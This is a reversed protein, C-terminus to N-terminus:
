KRALIANISITLETEVVMLTRVSIIYDREHIAHYTKGEILNRYLLPDQKLGAIPKGNLFQLDQLIKKRLENESIEDLKNPENKQEFLVKISQIKTSTAKNEKLKLNKNTSILNDMETRMHQNQISLLSFNYQYVAMFIASGVITGVIFIGFSAFFREYQSFPPVRM